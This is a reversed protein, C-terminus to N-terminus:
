TNLGSRVAKLIMTALKNPLIPKTLIHIDKLEEQLLQAQEPNATVFIIPVNQNRAGPFSRLAKAFDGGDMVPMRYDACIIQFDHKQSIELAEQGNSAKIVDFFDNEDFLEELIELIEEEDDIVLIKERSM